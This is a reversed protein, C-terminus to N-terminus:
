RTEPKPNRTEPKPNRTEPQPNRTAPKPYRTELKPPAPVFMPHHPPHGERQNSEKQGVLLLAVAQAPAIGVSLTPAVRFRSAPARFLRATAQRAVGPM